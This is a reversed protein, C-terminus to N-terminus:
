EKTAKAIVRAIHQSHPDDQHGIIEAALKLADLLEKNSSHLRCLEAAAEISLPYGHLAVLEYALRLAKPQETNM